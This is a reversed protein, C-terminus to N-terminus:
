TRGFQKYQPPSEIASAWWDIAGKVKWQRGHGPFIVTKTPLKSLLQSISTILQKEKGGPTDTRGVYQYLITDGTFVFDGFSYCVSGQTHGPTYFVKIQQNGIKFSKNSGYLSADHFPEIHRNDFVLAYLQAQNMLKKDAKHLYCPVKFQKYLFSVAGVHDHHAHTVLIKKFHYGQSILIEAIHEADHGPDILIQEGSPLHNVIYCNQCWPGGTELKIIQYNGINLQTDQVMM